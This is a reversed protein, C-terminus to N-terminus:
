IEGYEMATLYVIKRRTNYYTDPSINYKIEAKAQSCRKNFIIDFIEKEEETLKNLANEINNIKKTVTLIAKSTILKTAKQATTDSTTNGRPQGDNTSTSHLIDEELEKLLKKNGQYNYLEQMIYNKKYNELKYKNRM